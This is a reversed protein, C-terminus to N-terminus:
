CRRRRHLVTASAMNSLAASNQISATCMGPAMSRKCSPTGKGDARPSLMPAVLDCHGHGPRPFRPRRWQGSRVRSRNAVHGRPSDGKRRRRRLAIPAARSITLWAPGFNGETIPIAVLGVAAPRSAMQPAHGFPRSPNARVHRWTAAAANDPSGTTIAMLLDAWPQEPHNPRAVLGKNLPLNPRAPRLAPAFRTAESRCLSASTLTIIPQSDIQPLSRAVTSRWVSRTILLKYVHRRARCAGSRGGDIKQNPHENGPPIPPSGARRIFRRNRGSISVDLM